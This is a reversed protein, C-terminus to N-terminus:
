MAASLTILTAAQSATLWGSTVLSQVASKYANLLAMKTTPKTSAAALNLLASSAVSIVAARVVLKTIANAAQYKPSSRVFQTTLRSLDGPAVTVAFTTSATTVNGAKDTAMASLTHSGAGFSWAPGSASPCTASDVGSLADSASCSISVASLIGYSGTNGAFAVVPAVTDIQATYRRRGRQGGPRRM